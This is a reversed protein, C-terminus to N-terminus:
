LQVLYQFRGEGFTHTFALTIWIGVVHLLLMNAAINLPKLHTILLNTHDLDLQKSKTQSQSSLFTTMDRRLLDTENQM